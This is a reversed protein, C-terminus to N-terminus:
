LRNSEISVRNSGGILTINSAHKAKHGMNRRAALWLSSGVLTEAFLLYIGFCLAVLGRRSVIFLVLHTQLLPFMYHDDTLLQQV